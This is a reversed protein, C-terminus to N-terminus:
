NIINSNTTLSRDSKVIFSANFRQTFTLTHAGFATVNGSRHSFTGGGRSDFRATQSFSAFEAFNSFTFRRTNGSKQSGYNSGWFFCTEDWSTSQSFSLNSANNTFSTFNASDANHAGFATPTNPRYNNGTPSISQNACMALLDTMLNDIDVKKTHAILSGESVNQINVSSWLPSYRLYTNSQMARLSTVLTNIDTDDALSNSTNPVNLTTGSGYNTKLTNNDTYKQRLWSKLINDGVAM